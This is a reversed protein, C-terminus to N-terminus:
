MLFKQAFREAIAERLQKVLATKAKVPTDKEQIGGGSASGYIALAKQLNRFVGIYDM